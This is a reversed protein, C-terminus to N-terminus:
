SRHKIVNVTQFGLEKIKYVIDKLTNDIHMCYVRDRYKIPVEKSLKELSMHPNNDYDIGCTDQYIEAISGKKLLELVKIPLNNSDGSFYIWKTEGSAAVKMMYGVSIMDKVHRVRVSRVDLLLASDSIYGVYNLNTYAYLDLTVGMFKLLQVINNDVAIVHIQSSLKMNFHAYLILNSLSGVHDPHLHTILVTIKTVDSTLIKENILRDLVDFGCDILLLENNDKIFASNNGRFSNLASGDGTFKLTGKNVVNAQQGEFYVQNIVPLKRVISNYLKNFLQKYEANDHIAIDLRKGEKIYASIGDAEYSWGTDKIWKNMLRSKIEKATYDLARHQRSKIYQRIDSYNPIVCKITDFTLIDFVPGCQSPIGIGTLVSNWDKERTEWEEETVNDPMDTNDWYSYDHVESYSKFKSIFEERGYVTCLVKKDTYFLAINFDLDYEPETDSIFVANHQKNSLRKIRRNTYVKVNTNKEFDTYDELKNMAISDVLKTYEKAYIACFISNQLNRLDKTLNGLFQKLDGLTDVKIMYGNYITTSM